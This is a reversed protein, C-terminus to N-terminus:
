GAADRTARGRTQLSLMERPTGYQVDGEVCVAVGNLLWGSRRRAHESVNPLVQILFGDGCGRGDKDWAEMRADCTTEPAPATAEAKEDPVGGENARPLV